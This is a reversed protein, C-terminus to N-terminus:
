GSDKLLVVIQDRFFHRLYYLSIAILIQARPIRIVLFENLFRNMCDLRNANFRSSIGARIVSKITYDSDVVVGVITPFDVNRALGKLLDELHVDMVFLGSRRTLHSDSLSVPSMSVINNVRLLQFIM